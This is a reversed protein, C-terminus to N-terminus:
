KPGNVISPLANLVMQLAFILAAIIGAIIKGNYKSEAKLEAENRVTEVKDNASDLMVKTITENLRDIAKELKENTNSQNKDNEELVEIKTTHIAQTTQIEQILKLNVCQHENAM